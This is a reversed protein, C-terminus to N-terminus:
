SSFYEYIWIFEQLHVAPFMMMFTQNLDNEKKEHTIQLHVLWGNMLGLTKKWPLAEVKSKLYANAELSNETHNMTWFDWVGPITGKAKYIM